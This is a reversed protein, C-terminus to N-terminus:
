RWNQHNGGYSLQVERGAKRASKELGTGYQSRGAENGDYPEGNKGVLVVTDGHLAVPMLQTNM